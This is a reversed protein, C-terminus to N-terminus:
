HGGGLQLTSRGDETLFSVFRDADMADISALLDSVWEPQNGM